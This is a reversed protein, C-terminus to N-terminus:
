ACEHTGGTGVTGGLVQGSGRGRRLLAQRHSSAVFCGTFCVEPFEALSDILRPM